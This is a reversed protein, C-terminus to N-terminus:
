TKDFAVMHAAVKRGLRESFCRSAKAPRNEAAYKGIEAREKATYDNYHARPTLKSSEGVGPCFSCSKCQRQSAEVGEYFTFLGWVYVVYPCGATRELNFGGGFKGNYLIAFFSCRLGTFDPRM